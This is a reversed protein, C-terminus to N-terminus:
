SKTIGLGEAVVELLMDSVQWHLGIQSVALLRHNLRMEHPSALTVEVVDLFHLSGLKLWPAV